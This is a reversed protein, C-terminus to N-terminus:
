LTPILADYDELPKMIKFAHDKEDYSRHNGFSLGLPGTFLEQTVIETGTMDNAKNKKNRKIVPMKFTKTAEASIVFSTSGLDLLCRLPFYNNEDDIFFRYIPRKSIKTASVKNIKKDKLYSHYFVFDNSTNQRKNDTEPSDSIKQKIM